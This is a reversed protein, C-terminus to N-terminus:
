VGLQELYRERRWGSMSLIEVERWGYARALAHVDRILRRAHASVEAWFFTAIDFLV